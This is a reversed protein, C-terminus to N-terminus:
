YSFQRLRRTYVTVNETVAYVKEGNRYLVGHINVVAKFRAEDEV